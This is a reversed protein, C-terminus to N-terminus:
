GQSWPWRTRVWESAEILSVFLGAHMDTPVLSSRLHSKYLLINQLDLTLAVSGLPKVFTKHTEITQQSTDGTQTFEFAQYHLLREEHSTHEKPRVVYLM